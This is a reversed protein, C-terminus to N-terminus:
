IISFDFGQRIAQLLTNYKLVSASGLLPM